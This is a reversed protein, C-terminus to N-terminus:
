VAGGDDEEGVNGVGGGESLPEAVFGEARVRTVKVGSEAGDDALVGAGGDFPLEEAVADEGDEGASALRDFGREGAAFGAVVGGTRGADDTRHSIFRKREIM